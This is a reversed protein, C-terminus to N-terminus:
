ISYELSTQNPRDYSARDQITAPDFVTIDADMGVQLRGKNKM